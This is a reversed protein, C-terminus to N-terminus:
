SRPAGAPAASPNDQDLLQPAQILQAPTVVQEGFPKQLALVDRDQTVAFVAQATVASAVFVNDSSDRSLKGRRPKHQVRLSKAAIRAQAGSPQGQPSLRPRLEATVASYEDLIEQRRRIGSRTSASRSDPNL